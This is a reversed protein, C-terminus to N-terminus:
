RKGKPSLLTKAKWYKQYLASEFRFKKLGRSFRPGLERCDKEFRDLAYQYLRIDYQNHEQLLELTQPAVKQNAPRKSSVNKRLYYLRKWGLAQQFLILSEDFHESVGVAAFQEDILECARDLDSQTIPLGEETGCIMRTQLNRADISAPGEDEIFDHLSYDSHKACEHLWHGPNEQMHYYSSIVRDVPDRLMTIYSTSRFASDVMGHSIHGMVCQIKARDTEQLNKLEHVRDLPERGYILFIENDQYQRWVVSSLTAGAAKPIHLFILTSEKDTVNIVKRLPISVM